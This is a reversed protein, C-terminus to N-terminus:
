SNRIRIVLHIVSVILTAFVIGVLLWALVVSTTDPSVEEVRMIDWTDLDHRRLDVSLTLTSERELSDLLEEWPIANYLIERNIESHTPPLPEPDEEEYIPPAYEEIPEDDPLMDLITRCTHALYNFPVHLTELNVLLEIGAFCSIDIGYLDLSDIVYLHESTLPEYYYLEARERVAALFNEDCFYHSLDQIEGEANEYPVLVANEYEGNEADTYASVPLVIVAAFLMFLVGIFVKKVM